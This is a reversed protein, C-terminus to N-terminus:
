FGIDEMQQQQSGNLERMQQSLQAHQMQQMHALLSRLTPKRERSSATKSSQDARLGALPINRIWFHIFITLM